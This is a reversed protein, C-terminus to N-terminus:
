ESARAQRLQRMSLSNRTQGNMVLWNQSRDPSVIKDVNTTRELVRNLILQSTNGLLIWDRWTIGLSYFWHPLYLTGQILSCRKHKKHHAYWTLRAYTGKSAHNTVHFRTWNTGLTQISDQLYRYITHMMNKKKNVERRQGIDYCRITTNTNM